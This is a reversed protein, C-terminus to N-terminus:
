IFGYLRLLKLFFDHVKLKLLTVNFTKYAPTITTQDLSKHTSLYIYIDDAYLCLTFALVVNISPMGWSKRKLSHGRAM